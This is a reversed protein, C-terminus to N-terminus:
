NKYRREWKRHEPFEGRGYSEKQFVDGAGGMNRLKTMGMWAVLKKNCSGIVRGSFYRQSFFCLEIALGFISPLYHMKSYGKVLLPLLYGLSAQRVSPVVWTHEVCFGLPWCLCQAGTAWQPLRSTLASKPKGGKRVINRPIVEWIFTGVSLDKDRPWGLCMRKLDINGQNKKEMRIGFASCNFRM